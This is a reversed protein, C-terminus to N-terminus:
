YPRFRKRERLSQIRAQDERFKMLLQNMEQKKRERIQFRYFDQRQKKDAKKNLNESLEPNNVLKLRDTKGLIAAKTKRHKGVVLQFGDLDVIKGSNQVEEEEEAELRNFEKISEKLQQQLEDADLILLRMRKRYRAEGGQIDVLSPYNGNKAIKKVGSLFLKMASKDVFTVLGTNFPFLKPGLSRKESNQDFYESTLRDLDVDTKNLTRQIDFLQVLSADSVQRVLARMAKIDEISNPMNIVFVSKEVLGEDDSKAQHQKVYVYHLIEKEACATYAASPTVRVPLVRFGKIEDKELAM